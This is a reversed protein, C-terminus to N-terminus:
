ILNKRTLYERGKHKLSYVDDIGTSVSVEVHSIYGELYLKEFHYRLSQPHLQFKRCLTQKELERHDALLKLIEIEVPPLDNTNTLAAIRCELTKIQGKAHRLDDKLRANEDEVESHKAEVAVLKEKLVASIPIEKLLDTLWGM